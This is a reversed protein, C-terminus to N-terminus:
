YKILFELVTFPSIVDDFKTDSSTRVNCTAQLGDPRITAVETTANYATNGIEKTIRHQHQTRDTTETGPPSDVSQERNKAAPYCVNPNDTNSDHPWYSTVPFNVSNPWSSATVTSINIPGSPGHNAPGMTPWNSCFIFGSASKHSTLCGLWYEGWGECTARCNGEGSFEVGGVSEEGSVAELHYRGIESCAVTNFEFDQARRYYPRSANLGIPTGDVTGRGDEKVAVRAADTRHMHPGFATAGVFEIETNVPVNWGVNGNLAFNLTPVTFLGTFGTTVSNGVNSNIDVGVGAKKVTVASAGTGAIKEINRYEGVNAGTSAEIHKSGLDPVQFQTDSLTTETKKYVSGDGTGLIRALEPYERQDYIAGDCRLYGAPLQAANQSANPDNSTIQVGWNIITGPATGLKSREQQLFKM